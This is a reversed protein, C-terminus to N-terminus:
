DKLWRRVLCGNIRLLYMGKPLDNTNIEAQKAEPAINKLQQGLVNLIELQEIPYNSTVGLTSHAPNPFIEVEPMTVTVIGLVSDRVSVRNSTASDTCDAHNYILTATITDIGAAKIYTYRPIATTTAYVSHNYWKYTCIATDSGTITATVTVNTGVIGWPPAAITIGLNRPVM